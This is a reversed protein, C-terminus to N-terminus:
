ETGASLAKLNHAAASMGGQVYIVREVLSKIDATLHASFKVMQILTTDSTMRRQVESLEQVYTVDLGPFDTGLNKADVPRLGLVIVRKLKAKSAPRVLGGQTRETLEQELAAPMEQAVIQLVDCMIDAAIPVFQQMLLRAIGRAVPSPVRAARVAPHDEVSREVVREADLEIKPQEELIPKIPQSLAYDLDPQMCQLSATNRIVRQRDESLVLQAERVLPLIGSHVFGTDRLRIVEATVQACEDKKWFVKRKTM